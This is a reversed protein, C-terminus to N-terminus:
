GTARAARGPAEQGTAADAVWSASRLRQDGIAAIVVFLVAAEDLLAADLRDDGTPLALVAGPEAAMAPNDFAGEGPQVAASAQEDSGVTAVVDVFPKRARARAQQRIQQRLSSVTM